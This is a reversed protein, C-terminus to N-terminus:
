RASRALDAQTVGAVSDCTWPFPVWGFVRQWEQPSLHPDIRQCVDEIWMSPHVPLDNVMGRADVKLRYDPDETAGPGFLTTGLQRGGTADWFSLSGDADIAALVAGDASYKIDFIGKTHGDLRGIIGGEPLRLLLIRGNENAEIALTRGDPSFAYRPRATTVAAIEDRHLTAVDWMTLPHGDRETTFLRRSDPTFWVTEASKIPLTREEPTFGALNWLRVM